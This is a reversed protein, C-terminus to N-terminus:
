FFGGSRTNKAECNSLFGWSYTSVVGVAAWLRDSPAHHRWGSLRRRCSDAHLHLSSSNPRGPPPWLPFFPGPGAWNKNQPTQCKTLRPKAPHQSSKIVTGVDASWGSTSVIKNGDWCGGVLFDLIDPMKGLDAPHPSIGHYMELMRWSFFIM